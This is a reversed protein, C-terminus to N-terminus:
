MRGRIRHIADKVNSKRLVAKRAQRRAQRILDDFAKMSASSITQLILADDDGTTVLFQTGTRLGLRIRIKEPIVIRGKADLRTKTGGEM